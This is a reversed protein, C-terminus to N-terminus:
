QEHYERGWLTKKDTYFIAAFNCTFAGNLFDRM